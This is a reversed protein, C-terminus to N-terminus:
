PSSAGSWSNGRKAAKRPRISSSSPWPPSVAYVIGIIAEQPIPRICPEIFLAAGGVTFTLAYWYAAEGIAHGALAVSIGL